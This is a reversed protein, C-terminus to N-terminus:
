PDVYGKPELRLQYGSPDNQFILGGRREGRPPLYDLVVESTEINRSGDNLRGSILLSAATSPGSNRARFTVVYGGSTRQTSLHDVTVGPVSSEATMANYGLYGVMALVMVLGVAGSVWEWKSTQAAHVAQRQDGRRQNRSKSQRPKM